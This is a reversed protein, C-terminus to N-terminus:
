EGGERISVLHYALKSFVTAGQLLECASSLLPLPYKNKVTINNLGRYDICTRLSKDKQEVFFFGAGVPSSSPWIIGAALSATIYDLQSLSYLQSM